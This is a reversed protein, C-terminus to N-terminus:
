HKVNEMKITQKILLLTKFSVFSITQKKVFIHFTNGIISLCQSSM